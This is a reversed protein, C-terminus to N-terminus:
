LLTMPGTAPQAPTVPQWRHDCADIAQRQRAAGAALVILPSTATRGVINCQL